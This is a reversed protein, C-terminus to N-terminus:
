SEDGRSLQVANPASEGDENDPFHAELYDYGQEILQALPVIFWTGDTSPDGQEVQQSFWKRTVDM